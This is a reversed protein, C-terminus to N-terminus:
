LRFGAVPRTLRTSAGSRCDAAQRTEDTASTACNAATRVREIAAAIETSGANV